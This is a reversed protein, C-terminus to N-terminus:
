VKLPSNLTWMTKRLVYSSASLHIRMKMKISNLLLDHNWGKALTQNTYYLVAEDDLDKSILILIRTWQLVAVTRQLKVDSDSFRLYFRKM